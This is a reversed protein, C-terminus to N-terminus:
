VGVHRLQEDPVILQRGVLQRGDCTVKLAAIYKAAVLWELGGRRQTARIGNVNATVIRLPAM